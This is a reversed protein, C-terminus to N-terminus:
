GGTSNRIAVVQSYDERLYGDNASQNSQVLFGSIVFPRRRKMAEDNASNIKQTSRMILGIEVSIIQDTSNLEGLKRYGFQSGQQVGFRVKFLEADPIILQEAKGFPQCYLGYRNTDNDLTKIYYRQIVVNDKGVSDGACDELLGDEQPKFQIVLQDNALNHPSSDAQRTVFDAPLGSTLSNKEADFIIGSGQTQANVIRSASTNLNAHRLEYTLQSLGFISNQQLTSMGSQTALSRHGAFFISLAAAVVLLGLSIAIMLEILTVGQQSKLYNAM